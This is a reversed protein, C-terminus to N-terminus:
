RVPFIGENSVSTFEDLANKEPKYVSVWTFSSESLYDEIITENDNIPVKVTKKEGGSNVYTILTYLATDISKWSIITGNDQQKIEIIRRNSLTSQYFNGYSYGETQVVLSKNGSSDFEDIKLQLHIEYSNQSTVKVVSTQYGLFNVLLEDGESVSISFKGDMDTICGRTSNKVTVTAGAVPSDTEDFIVGKVEKQQQVVSITAVGLYDTNGRITLSPVTLLGLVLFLSNKKM